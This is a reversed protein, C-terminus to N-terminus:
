LVKANNAADRAQRSMGTEKGDTCYHSSIVGPRGGLADVELGSDDALCPLNTQQAYSIAKITANEEFTKGHEHPETTPPIDALTLLRIGTLGSQSFIARLEEVKHPNATALVLTALQPM